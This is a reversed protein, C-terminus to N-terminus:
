PTRRSSYLKWGGIIMGTTVSMGSILVLSVNMLLGQEFYGIGKGSPRKETVLPQLADKLVQKAEREGDVGIATALNESASTKVVYHPRPMSFLKTSYRRVLDFPQYLPNAPGLLLERPVHNAFSASAPVFQCLYKGTELNGFHYAATCPKDLQHDIIALADDLSRITHIVLIPARISNLLLNERADIEVIAYHCEHAITRVDGHRQQLVELSSQLLDSDAGPTTKESGGALQAASTSNFNM